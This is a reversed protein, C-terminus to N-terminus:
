EDRFLLLNIARDAASLWANSQKEKNPDASFTAWDPLPDGNFAVGGVATCYANYLEEAVVERNIM